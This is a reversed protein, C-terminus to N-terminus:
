IKWWKKSVNDKKESVPKAKALMKEWEAETICKIVSILSFNNANWKIHVINLYDHKIPTNNVNLEINYFM